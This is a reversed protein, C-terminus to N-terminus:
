VAMFKKLLRKPRESIIIKKYNPHNMQDDAAAESRLFDIALQAAEISLTEEEQIPEEVPEM